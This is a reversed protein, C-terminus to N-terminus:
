TTVRGASSLSAIVHRMVSLPYTFLTCTCIFSSQFNGFGSPAYKQVWTHPADSAPYIFPPRAYFFLYILLPGAYEVLFM